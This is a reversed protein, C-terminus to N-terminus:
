YVVVFAVVTDCLPGRGSSDFHDQRLLTRVSLVGGGYAQTPEFLLAFVPLTQFCAFPFCAILLFALLLADCYM